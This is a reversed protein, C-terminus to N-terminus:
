DASESNASSENIQKAETLLDVFTRTDIVWGFMPAAHNLLELQAIACASAILDTFSGPKVYVKFNVTDRELDPTVHLGAAAYSGKSVSDSMQIEATLTQWIASDEVPQLNEPISLGAKTAVRLLHDKAPNAQDRAVDFLRDDIADLALRIIMGLGEGDERAMQEFRATIIVLGHLLSLAEVPQRSTILAQAGRFYAVGQGFLNFALVQSITQPVEANATATTDVLIMVAELLDRKRIELAGSASQSPIWDGEGWGSPRSHSAEIPCPNLGGYIAFDRTEFGLGPAFQVTWTELPEFVVNDDDLRCTKISSSWQLMPFPEGSPGLNLPDSPNDSVIYGTIQKYLPSVDIPRKSMLAGSAALDLSPAVSLVASRVLDFLEETISDAAQRVTGLDAMGHEFEDSAKRAADYVEKDGEFIYERRAFNGAMMKWNSQSTDVGLLQAHERETLGLRAQNVRLVAKTLVECAIYLHVLVLTRAGTNWYRLAAQYQALARFLRPAESSAFAAQGFAFFDDAEIWRGPRPLGVEDPLFTELFERRALGSTSNFVIHPAPPEVAANVCFSIILAIASAAHTASRVAADVSPGRTRIAMWLERPVPYDLGLDDWRTSVRAQVYSGLSDPFDPLDIHYGRRVRAGSRSRLVVTYEATGTASDVM